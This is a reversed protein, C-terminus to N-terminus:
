KMLELIEPFTTAFSQGRLRDLQETRRFFVKLEDSRDKQNMFGIIYDLKHQLQERKDAHLRSSNKEFFKRYRLEVEKKAKPPLIQISLWTPHELVQGFPLIYFNEWNKEWRYELM